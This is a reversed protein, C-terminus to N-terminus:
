FMCELAIRMSRIHAPAKACEKKIGFDEFGLFVGSIVGLPMGTAPKVDELPIISSTGARVAFAQVVSPFGVDGYDRTFTDMKEAHIRVHESEVPTCPIVAEVSQYGKLIEFARSSRHVYRPLTGHSVVAEPHPRLSTIARLHSCFTNPIADHSNLRTM